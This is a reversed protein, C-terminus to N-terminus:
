AFVGIVPVAEDPGCVAIGAPFSNWATHESDPLRVCAYWVDPEGAAPIEPLMDGNEDEGAPITAHGQRPHIVNAFADTFAALADVDASKLYIDAYAVSQTM